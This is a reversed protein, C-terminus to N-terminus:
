PLFIVTVFKINMSLRYMIDPIAYMYRSNCVNAHEGWTEVKPHTDLKVYPGWETEILLLAM